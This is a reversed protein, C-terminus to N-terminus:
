QSQHSPKYLKQDTELVNLKKNYDIKKYFQSKAARCEYKIYKLDRIYPHEKFVIGYGYEGDIDDHEYVINLIKYVKGIRATPIDAPIGIFIVSDGINLEQGDCDYAKM